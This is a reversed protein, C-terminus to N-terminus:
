PHPQFASPTEKIGGTSFLAQWKARKSKGQHTYNYYGRTDERCVRM